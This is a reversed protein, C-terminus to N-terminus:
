RKLRVGFVPTTHKFLSDAGAWISFDNNIHFLARADLQFRNPNHADVILRTLPAAQWDLGIGLKSAYIGYRLAASNGLLTEYQANLKYSEAFDYLGLNFANRDGIPFRVNVDSRFHPADGRTLFDISLGPKGIGFRPGGGPVDIKGLLTNVREVLRQGEETTEKLTSVTTKLDSQVNPDGSIQHIDSAIQNFRAITTKLLDLTEILSQQLRPDSVQETLKTVASRAADVTDAFNQLLDIAGDALQDLKSSNRRVIARLERSLTQTTQRVDRSIAQLDNLMADRTQAIRPSGILHSASTTTTQLNALIADTRKLIGELQVFTSRVRPTVTRLAGVLEKVAVDAEPSVAALGGLPELVVNEEPWVGTGDTPLFRDSPFPPKPPKIEIQPNSILLGSTISITSGVPILRGRDITLTVVPKLDNPRLAIKKVEGITVGNMRVPTQVLLGRTDNFTVQLEYRYFSFHSLFAWGVLFLGVGILVTIGVKVAARSEM